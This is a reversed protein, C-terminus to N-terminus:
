SRAMASARVSATTHDNLPHSLKLGADLRRTRQDQPYPDGSPVTGNSLTGGRRTETM